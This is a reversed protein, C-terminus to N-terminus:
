HSQHLILQRGPLWGIQARAYLIAFTALISFPEFDPADTYPM